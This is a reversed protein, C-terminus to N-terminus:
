FELIVEDLPDIRPPPGSGEEMRHRKGPATDRKLPLLELSPVSSGASAGINPGSMGNEWFKSFYAWCALLEAVEVPTCAEIEEDKINQLFRWGEIEIQQCKFREKFNLCLKKHNAQLSFAYSFDSVLKSTPLCKKGDLFHRSAMFLAVSQSM